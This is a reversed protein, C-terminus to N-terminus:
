PSEQEVRYAVAKTANWLLLDGAITQLNLDSGLEGTFYQGGWDDRIIMTRTMLNQDDPSISLWAPTDPIEVFTSGPPLYRTRGEPSIVLNESPVFLTDGGATFGVPGLAPLQQLAIMVAVEAHNDFTRMKLSDLGGGVAYWLEDRLQGSGLVPHGDANRIQERNGDADLLLLQGSATGVLTTDASVEVSTIVDALDLQWRQRGAPTFSQLKNQYEGVIFPYEGRFFVRGHGRLVFATNGLSDLVSVRGDETTPAASYRRSFAAGDPYEARRVVQGDVPDLFYLYPDNWISIRRGVVERLLGGRTMDGPLADTQAAAPINDLDATWVVM